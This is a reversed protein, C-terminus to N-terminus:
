AGMDTANHNGAIGGGAQVYRIIAERQAPNWLPSGNSSSVNFLLIADFRALAEDTFFSPNKAPNDCNNAGGGNNTCDLAEVTYGADEIAEKVVPVGQNIADAHRFGTTGSYLLIRKQQAQASAPATTFALAAVLAMALAAVLAVAISRRACAGSTTALLPMSGRM